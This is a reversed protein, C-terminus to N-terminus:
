ANRARTGAPFGLARWALRIPDPAGPPNPGDIEAAAGPSFHRRVWGPDYFEPGVILSIARYQGRTRILTMVEAAAPYGATGVLLTKGKRAYEGCNIEMGVLWRSGDQRIQIVSADCFVRPKLQPATQMLLGGGLHIADAALYANIAPMMARVEAKNAAPPPPGSSTLWIGAAAVMSALALAGAVLILRQSRDAM